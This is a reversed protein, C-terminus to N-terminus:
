RIRARMHLTGLLTFKLRDGPQAKVDPPDAMINEVDSGVDEVTGPIRGGVGLVRGIRGGTRAIKGRETKPQEGDEAYAPSTRVPLRQGELTISTLEIALTPYGSGDRNASMLEAGVSLGKPLIEKGKVFVPADLTARYLQGVRDKTSDVPDVMKVIFATGMPIDANDAIQPKAEPQEEPEAEAEEQPAGEPPAEPPPQPPLINLQAVDSVFFTKLEGDVVFRITQSDGGFYKGEVQTGDRLVLTEACLAGCLVVWAM